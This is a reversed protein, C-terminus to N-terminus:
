MGVSDKVCKSTFSTKAAGSLKKEAAQADCSAKMDRECKTMFSTKAAGALKKETAQAACSSEAALAGGACLIMALAAAIAKM